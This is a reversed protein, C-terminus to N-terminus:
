PNGGVLMLGATEELGFMLNMNQVAQGAAGKVLNDIASFVAVQRGRAAFGVDCFNSSKVWNIDPSGKVLRVFFSGRYFEEYLSALEEATTEREAEAYVSAFIGRSVPLSHTMFVLENTWAGSVDGLTQEIEPVHQHTFPKYAYFSNSRQPHHTNAAPKAGSGSSGTKADVVVRGRLAGKSALPALALLTATAFCGPNSVLRASRIAERNLETLGYVFERQLETATHARGYHEEFAAADRLRFDGSLDVVKLGTPLRPAVELAQGHPLALFLCDLSSLGEFDEPAKEFRLATLGQLNRHVEGVAKGAHENATVLAVEASPHFLLIRLLEAGGYGSGGFIGIKLKM